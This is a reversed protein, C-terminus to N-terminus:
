KNQPMASFNKLEFVLNSIEQQIRFLICAGGEKLGEFRYFWACNKNCTIKQSNTSLLPCFNSVM